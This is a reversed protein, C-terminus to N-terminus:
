AKQYADVIDVCAMIGCFIWALSPLLMWLGIAAGYIVIKTTFTMHKNEM